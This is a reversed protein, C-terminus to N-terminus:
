ANAYTWTTCGSPGNLPSWNCVRFRVRRGEALDYDAWTTDSSGALHMKPSTWQNNKCYSLYGAVFGSYWNRVKLKDGYEYWDAWGRAGATWGSGWVKGNNINGILCSDGTASVDADAASVDAGVAEEASLDPQPSASATGVVSTAAALTLAAASLAVRKAIRNM